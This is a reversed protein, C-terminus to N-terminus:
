SGYVIQIDQARFPLLVPLTAIVGGGSGFGKGSGNANYALEGTLESYLFVARSRDSSGLDEVLNFASGAQARKLRKRGGFAEAALSKRSVGEVRIRDSGPRFDTIVDGQDLGDRLKFRFTNSGGGGTMLDSGKGGYIVNDRSSGTIEDAEDTGNLKRRPPPTPSPEGSGDGGGSDGGGGGSGGSGGTSGSDGDGGSIVLDRITTEVLGSAVTSSESGLLVRFAEDGETVADSTTAVSFNVLQSGAALTGGSSNTATLTVAKTVPDTSIGSITVADVASIDGAVLASFDLGETATGSASDLTLTVSQGALLGSGGLSVAYAGLQGEVVSAQGTLAITPTPVLDSITTTVVGSSVVATSSALTVGFTESGEVLADTTTPLQVTLLTAGVALAVGSTNTATVTVTGSAATSIAGLTIGDAKELNSALLAAFDVGETATGGASDLSFTVSRGAALGVGDTAVAYSAVQGETVSAPGSLRITVPLVNRITTSVTQAQVFDSLTVTVIEDPENQLDVAVPLNLTAIISGASFGRSASAVAQILGTAADVRVNSLVIGAAAQLSGQVLAALDTSFQATDDGLQLSFVVSDGSALGSNSLAITYSANAGENVPTPPGSLSLTQLADLNIDGFRITEFGTISNGFGDNFTVVGAENSSTLQYSAFTGPLLLVDNGEGGDFRTQNASTTVQVVDNGTGSEISSNAITTLIINDADAGGFVSSRTFLGNVKLQDTGSGLDISADEVAPQGLTGIEVIDNGAETNLAAFRLAGVLFPTDNADGTYVVTQDTATGTIGQLRTRNFRFAEWLESGSAIDSNLEPALAELGNLYYDPQGFVASSEQQRYLVLDFLIDGFLIREFGYIQNNNSVAIYDDGNLISDLMVIGDGSADKFEIDWDFRSGKLVILDGFTVEELTLDEGLTIGIAGGPPPAGFVADYYPTNTGGGFVSQWPMLVSVIDDGAGAFISSQFIYGQSADINVEARISQTIGPGVVSFFDNGDGMRITTLDLANIYVGGSLIGPPYGVARLVDDGSSPPSYPVFASSIKLGNGDLVFTGDGTAPDVTFRFGLGFDNKGVLNAPLPVGTRLARQAETEPVEFGLPSEPDITRNGVSSGWNLITM